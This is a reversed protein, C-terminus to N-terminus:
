AAKLIQLDTAAPQVQRVRGNIAEITQFPGLEWGFGWQMVRDVDDNSYAIDPAVQETYALTPGLTDRLFQGAKDNGHYLTRIREGTDEIARAADLSPLKASQKARYTM